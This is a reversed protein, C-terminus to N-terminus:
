QTRQLTTESRGGHTDFYFKKVDGVHVYTDQRLLKTSDDEGLNLYEAPICKLEEIHRYQPPAGAIVEKLVVSCFIPLLNEVLAPKFGKSYSPHVSGDDVLKFVTGRHACFFKFLKDLAADSINSSVKIKALEEGVEAIDDLYTRPANYPQQLQETVIRRRAVVERDEGQLEGNAWAHPNDGHLPPELPHVPDDLLPLEEDEDSVDNGRIRQEARLRARRRLQRLKNCAKKRDEASKTGWLAKPLRKTRAPPTKTAAPVAELYDSRDSDM